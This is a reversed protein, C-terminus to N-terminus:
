AVHSVMPVYLAITLKGEVTDTMWSPALFSPAKMMKVAQTLYYKDIEQLTFM